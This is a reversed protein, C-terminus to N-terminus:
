RPCGCVVSLIEVAAEMKEWHRWGKSKFPKMGEGAKTTLHSEFTREAALGEINAGKVNDWHTGSTNSKYTIITKHTAKLTGWKSSCQSQSRTFGKTALYVSAATFASKPPNNGDGVRGGQRWEILRNLLHETEEDTWHKGSTSSTESM